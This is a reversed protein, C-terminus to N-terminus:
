SPRRLRLLQARYHFGTGDPDIEFEARGAAQEVRLYDALGSHLADYDAFTAHRRQGALVEAILGADAIGQSVRAPHALGIHLLFAEGDDALVQPLGALLECILDAGDAGGSRDLRFGVPGPTQPLNFCLAQAREGHERLPALLSATDFVAQDLMDLQARHRTLTRALAALSPAHPDTLLLRGVRRGSAAVAALLTFAFAGSGCGIDAMLPVTEPWNDQASRSLRLASFLALNEGSLPHTGAAGDLRLVAEGFPLASQRRALVRRLLSALARQEGAAPYRDIIEQQAVAALQATADPTEFVKDYAEPLASFDSFLRGNEGDRVLQRNGPVDRALVPVGAAMAEALAHSLGEHASANIVLAAGRLVALYEAHPLGPHLLLRGTLSPTAAVLAAVRARLAAAYAVEIAPGLVILAHNPYRDALLLALAEVTERVGKLQRLSAPLLIPLVGDALRFVAKLDCRATTVVDIGNPVVTTDAPVPLGTLRQKLAETLCVLAESSALAEAMAARRPPQDVDANADTGSAMLVSPLPPGDECGFAAALPVGARYLHVGFVLDLADGAAQGRLAAVEQAVAAEDAPDALLPRYFVRAQGSFAEGYRRATEANGTAPTLKGYLLVAPREDPVRVLGAFSVLAWERCARQWAASKLQSCEHARAADRCFASRAADQSPVGPHVMLEVSRVGAASLRALAAAFPAVSLRHGMSSQGLFAEPALVGHRAFLPAAMRTARAVALHFDREFEADAVQDELGAECPLRVRTVGYERAMIPALETAIAPEVHIHHHGDVHTPLQGTLDIFRDFQRRIEAAIVAGSMEGAALAARVGFKGRLQGCADVLVGTAPSAGESFNLHLGLPLGVRAAEKAAAVASLGDVMLSASTIAGARACDLIGADRDPTMGLDDANIILQRLPLAVAQVKRM